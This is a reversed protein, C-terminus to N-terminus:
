LLKNKLIEYVMRRRFYPMHEQTFTIESGRTIYEAYKCAFMGCDSGNLQEPIGKVEQCTWGTLDFETKRKDLSEDCLYQRITNLCQPNRGGMSDYYNIEKKTFDVTALCWHMGLHIPILLYDNEFIDTRRTWRRISSYGSSLMKPYFFTNFAYVKSFDDKGGREMLLNMYFNIIEDNLWNLGALTNMDRRKIQIKFHETLVEEGPNPVLAWDIEEEMDSTLEPFEDAQTSGENYEDEEIVARERRAEHLRQEIRAQRQKEKELRKEELEDIKQRELAIKRERARAAQSFKERLDKAWDEIFYPSDKFAPPKDRLVTPTTFLESQRLTSKNLASTESVSSDLTIVPVERTKTQKQLRAPSSPTVPSKHRPTSTSRDLIRGLDTHSFQRLLQRYKERDELQKKQTVSCAKFGNDTFSSNKPTKFTKDYLPLYQDSRSTYLSFPCSKKELREYSPTQWKSARSNVMQPHHMESHGNTLKTRSMGDSIDREVELGLLDSSGNPSPCQINALDHIPPRALGKVDDPNGRQGPLNYKDQSTCLESVPVSKRQKQSHILKDMKEKLVSPMGRIHWHNSEQTRLKKPTSSLYSDEFQEEQDENEDRPRKRSVTGQNEYTGFVFKRISNTLASFM